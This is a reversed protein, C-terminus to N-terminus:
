SFNEIDILIMVTLFSQGITVLAAVKSYIKLNLYKTFLKVINFVNNSHKILELQTFVIVKNSEMIHVSNM